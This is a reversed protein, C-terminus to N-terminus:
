YLNEFQKYSEDVYAKFQDRGSKYADVYRGVAKQQDESMWNAQDLMANAAKEYQDQLMVGMEYSNNFVTQGTKLAQQMYEKPSM